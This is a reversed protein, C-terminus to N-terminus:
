YPLRNIFLGFKQPASIRRCTAFGAEFNARPPAIAKKPPLAIHNLLLQQAAGIVKRPSGYRRLKTAFFDSRPFYALWPIVHVFPIELGVTAEIGFSITRGRIQRLGADHIEATDPERCLREGL